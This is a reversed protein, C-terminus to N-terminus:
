RFIINLNQKLNHKIKNHILDVEQGTLTKNNSQYFLRFAMSKTGTIMQKGEYEDFLEIKKLINTEVNKINEIINEMTINTNSIIAIDRIITPFLSYQKFIINKTVTCYLEAILKVLDIEFGYATTSINSKNLIKPHIEGFIGIIQQDYYISAYKGPHFLKNKCNSNRKWEIKDNTNFLITEVIGKAEFWNMKRSTTNWSKRIPNTGFIGAIKERELINNNIHTFVRGIEFIELNSNNQKYNASFSDVLNDLLKSRLSNYEIVLPNKLTINNTDKNNILSYHIVESFGLSRLRIRVKKLEKNRQSLKPRKQLNPLRASFQQFGYIRAVEEILDIERMLDQARHDPILIELNQERQTVKCGISELIKQATYKNVHNSLNITPGLIDKLKSERLVIKNAASKQENIVNTYITDFTAQPHVKKIWSITDLWALELINSNLGREYRISAETRINLLKSGNRILYRPPIIAYICISNSTNKLTFEDQIHIGTTGIIKNQLNTTLTKKNDIEQINFSLENIAKDRYESWDIIEIPQGWQIMSYNAIDIINNIPEIGCEKLKNRIIKPSEKIEINHILTVIYYINEASSNIQNLKDFKIMQKINHLEEAKHLKYEVNLLTSIEKAIGVISLLDSRNPTSSIDLIYNTNEVNTITHIAEIECGAVTLKAGVEKPTTMELNVFENLWEWSVLM